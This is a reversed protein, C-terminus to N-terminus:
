SAHKRFPHFYLFYNLREADIVIQVCEPRDAASVDSSDPQGLLPRRTLWQQQWACLAERIAEEHSADDVSEVALELIEAMDQTITVSMRRIRSM